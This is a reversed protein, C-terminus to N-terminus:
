LSRVFCPFYLDSGSYLQRHYGYDWRSNLNWVFEVTWRRLSGAEFSGFSDLEQLLLVSVCKSVPYFVAVVLRVATSHSFVCLLFVSFIVFWFLCM